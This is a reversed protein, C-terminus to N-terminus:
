PIAGGMIDVDHLAPETTAELVFDRIAGIRTARAKRASRGASVSASKDLPHPTRNLTPSGL